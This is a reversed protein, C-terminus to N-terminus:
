GNLWQQVRKRIYLVHEVRATTWPVVIQRSLGTHFGAGTPGFQGEIEMKLIRVVTHCNQGERFTAVREEDRLGMLFNNFEEEFNAM